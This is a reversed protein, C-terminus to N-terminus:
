QQGGTTTTPETSTTVNAAAKVATIYAKVATRYAEFASVKDLRKNRFDQIEAKPGDSSCTLPAAAALSQLATQAAAKTSTVTAELTDADAVTLSHQTAYTQATTFAKTIRDFQSQSTRRVADMANNITTQHEDCLKLKLATLKERAVEKRVEGTPNDAQPIPAATQTQTSGSVVETRRVIPTKTDTSTSGSVTKSADGTGSTTTSTSTGTSVSGTTGDEALIVTSGTLAVSLSTIGIALIRQSLKM